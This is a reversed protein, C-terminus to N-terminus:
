HIIERIESFDIVTNKVQLVKWYNDVCVINGSIQLRQHEFKGDYVVTVLQGKHLQVLTKQIPEKM